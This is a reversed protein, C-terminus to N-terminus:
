RHPAFVACPRPLPCVEAYADLDYAAKLWRKVEDDIDGTSTIPIRRTIRDKKAYGGTDIVRGSAKTDRSHLALNPARARSPVYVAM